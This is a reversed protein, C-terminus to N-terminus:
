GDGHLNCEYRKKKGPACKRCGETVKCVAGHCQDGFWTASVACGKHRANQVADSTDVLGERGAEVRGVQPRGGAITFNSRDRVTEACLGRKQRGISAEHTDVSVKTQFGRYRWVVKPAKTQIGYLVAPREKFTIMWCERSAIKANYTM